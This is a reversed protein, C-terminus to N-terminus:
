LDHVILLFSFLGNKGRETFLVYVNKHVQLSIHSLLAFSYHYLAHLLPQNNLM